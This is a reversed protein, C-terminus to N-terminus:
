SVREALLGIELRVERAIFRDSGVAALDWRLGFARRDLVATTTFRAASWRLPEHRVSLPLDCRYGNLDLDGDVLVTAGSIRVSRSVYRAVPHTAAGLLDHARVMDNWLQSGFDASHLGLDIQVSNATDDGVVLTGSVDPVQGSITGLLHRGAFVVTSRRRDVEWVGAALAPEVTARRTAVTNM